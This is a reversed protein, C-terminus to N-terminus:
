APWRTSPRPATPTASSRASRCPCPWANRIHEPLTTEEELDVPCHLLSCSSGRLVRETGLAAVARTVLPLIQAYDSKWINRGNVVGLSLATDAPLKDLVADLQERGRVMDVHLTACGSALALDLNRCLPGFYTTLMLKGNSATNLAAYAGSFGREGRAASTETCLM